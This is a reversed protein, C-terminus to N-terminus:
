NSQIQLEELESAYKQSIFRRRIKFAATVLGSDPTWEDLTLLVTKPCEVKGLGMSLGYKELNQVVKARVEKQKIAEKADLNTLSALETVSPVIVAKCYDQTPDALMCINEVLPNTKFVSEIRGYSIYEGHQLKM